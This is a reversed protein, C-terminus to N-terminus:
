SKKRQWKEEGEFFALGRAIGLALAREALSTSNLGWTAPNPSRGTPLGMQGRSQGRAFADVQLAWAPPLEQPGAGTGEFHPALPCQSGLDHGYLSRTSEPDM